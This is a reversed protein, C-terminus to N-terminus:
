SGSAKQPPAGSLAALAAAGAKAADEGTVREREWRKREEIQARTLTPPPPIPPPGKPAFSEPRAAARERERRDFKQQDILWSKWEALWEWRAINAARKKAKFKEFTAGVDAIAFNMEALARFEDPLTADEPILCASLEQRQFWARPPDSETPAAAVALGKGQVGVGSDAAVPAPAARVRALFRDGVAKEFALAFPRGLLECTALLARCAEIKLNCERVLRLPERWGVVVNPNTPTNYRCANPLWVVRCEWDARARDGLRLFATTFKDTTWGLSEALQPRGASLLGPISTVELGTLLYLWLLKSDDPLSIFWEDSWTAADM